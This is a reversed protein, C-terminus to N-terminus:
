LADILRKEVLVDDVEDVEVEEHEVEDALTKWMWVMVVVDDELVEFVVVLLDLVDVVELEVLLVLTVEVEVIDVLEYSSCTWYNSWRTSSRM